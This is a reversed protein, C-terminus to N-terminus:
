SNKAIVSASSYITASVGMVALFVHFAKRCNNRLASEGVVAVNWFLLLHMIPPLAFAVTGICFSGVFELLVAFNVGLSAICFPFSSLLVRIAIQKPHTVFPWEYGDEEEDEAPMQFDNPATSDVHVKVCAGSVANREAPTLEEPVSPPTTSKCEEVAEEDDGDDILRSEVIVIAAFLKLPMTLYIVVSMALKAINASVSDMNVFVIANTNAGYASYVLAGIGSFAVLSTAAVGLLVLPYKEKQGMTSFIPVVESHGAFAFATLGFFSALSSVDWDPPAAWMSWDVQPAASALIIALSAILFSNGFASVVSLLSIDRLCAFTAVCPLMALVLWRPYGTDGHSFGAVDTINTACFVTYAVCCLMSNLLINVTGLTKGFRGLTVEAIDDYTRAAPVMSCCQAILGATYFSWSCIVFTALLGPYIGVKSFAFPMALVGTGFVSKLTNTFVGWAKATAKARRRTGPSRGPSGASVPSLPTSGGSLLSQGLESPTTPTTGPIAVSLNKYSAPM